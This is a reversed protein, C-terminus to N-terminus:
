RIVAQVIREIESIRPDTLLPLQGRDQKLVRAIERVAHAYGRVNRPPPTVASTASTAYWRDKERHTVECLKTGMRIAVGKGELEVLRRSYGPNPLGPALDRDIEDRTAGLMHTCLYDYVVWQMRGLAGSSKIAEYAALQTYPVIM